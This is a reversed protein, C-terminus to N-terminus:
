PNSLKNKFLQWKATLVSKAETVKQDLLVKGKDTVNNWKKKIADFDIPAPNEPLSPQTTSTSNTTAPSPTVSNAPTNPACTTESVMLWSSELSPSSPETKKEEKIEPQVIDEKKEPNEKNELPIVDEPKKEDLVPQSVPLPATNIPQKPSSPSVTDSPLPSTRNKPPISKNKTFFYFLGFGSTGAACYLLFYFDNELQRAEQPTCQYAYYKKYQKYLKKCKLKIRTFFAPKIKQLKTEAPLSSSYCIATYFLFISSLFSISHKQM